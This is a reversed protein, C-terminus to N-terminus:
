AGHCHKYKKGSGCPCPSNRPIKKGVFSAGFKKTEKNTKSNENTAVLEINFLTKIVKENQSSLMQDFYDFSEKRYENFPDKGGLARLNVNGRLTDMAALHNIWDKDIQFLMIRKEALKLLEKSYTNNKETYKQNVQDIIRNKIEEDDVGEENM